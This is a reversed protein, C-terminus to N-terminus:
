CIWTGKPWSDERTSVGALRCHVAAVAPSRYEQLLLKVESALVTEQKGCDM